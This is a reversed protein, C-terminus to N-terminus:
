QNSRDVLKPKEYFVERPRIIPHPNLEKYQPYRQEEKAVYGGTSSNGLKIQKSLNVINGILSDLDEEKHHINPTYAPTSLPIQQYQSNMVPVNQQYGKPQPAVGPPTINDLDMNIKSIERLIGDLSKQGGFNNQIYSEKMNIHNESTVYNKSVNPEFTSQIRIPSNTKKTKPLSNKLGFDRDFTSDTKITWKQDDNKLVNDIKSVLNMLENDPFAFPNNGAMNAGELGPKKGITQMNNTSSFNNM